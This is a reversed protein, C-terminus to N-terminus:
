WKQVNDLLSSLSVANYFFYQTPHFFYMMSM